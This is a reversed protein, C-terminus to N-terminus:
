MCTVFTPISFPMASTFSASITVPSTFRLYRCRSVRSTSSSPFVRGSTMRCCSQVRLPWTRQNTSRGALAPTRCAAM